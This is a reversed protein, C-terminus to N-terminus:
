MPLSRILEFGDLLTRGLCYSSQLSHRRGHMTYISLMNGGSELTQMYELGEWDARGMLKPTGHFNSSLVKGIRGGEVLQKIKRVAPSVPAQLGVITKVGKEKALRLMEEAQSADKALPWECFVDKGAKLAPVLADYHRDVRVSCVVLDINPDAALDAPSGYAKTSSPLGHLKGGLWM